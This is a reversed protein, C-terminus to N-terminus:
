NEVHQLSTQSLSLKKVNPILHMNLGIAAAVNLIIRTNLDNDSIM